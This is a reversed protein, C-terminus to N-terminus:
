HLHSRPGDWPRRHLLFYSLHDEGSDNSGAHNASDRWSYYFCFATPACALVLHRRLIRRTCHTMQFWSDIPLASALHTKHRPIEPQPWPKLHATCIKKERTGPKEPWGTTCAQRQTGREWRWWSYIKGPQPLRDGGGGRRTHRPIYGPSTRCLAGGNENSSQGQGEGEWSTFHAEWHCFTESINNHSASPTFHVLAIQQCLAKIEAMAVVGKVLPVNLCSICRLKIGPLTIQGVHPMMPIIIVLKIAPNIIKMCNWECIM